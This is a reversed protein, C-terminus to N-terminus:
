FYISLVLSLIKLNHYQLFRQLLWSLLVLEASLPLNIFCLIIFINHKNVDPCVQLMVIALLNKSYSAFNLYKPAPIVFWFQM